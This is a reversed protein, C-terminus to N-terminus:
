DHTQEGQELTQYLRVVHHMMLRGCDAPLGELSRKVQTLHQFARQVAIRRAEQPPHERELLLVANLPQGGNRHRDQEIDQLDDSIQYAIGFARSARRVTPLLAQQGSAALPLELALSLLSASKLAVITEYADLSLPQQAHYDLDAAQGHVTSAVATHMIQVLNSPNCAPSVRALLGYSGSLMLDGLCIAINPNFQKWVALKGRRYASRDQLDDHILSANHLLECASAIYVADDQPLELTASADLALSLRTYHGGSSLHHSLAQKLTDDHFSGDLCTNTMTLHCATLAQETDFRESYAKVLAM